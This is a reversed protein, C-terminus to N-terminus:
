GRKRAGWASELRSIRATLDRAPPLGSPKSKPKDGASPIDDDAPPAAAGELVAVREELEGAHKILCALVYAVDEGLRGKCAAARKKLANMSAGISM